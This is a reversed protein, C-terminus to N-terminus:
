RKWIGTLKSVLGSKERGREPGREPGRDVPGAGADGADLLAYGADEVARRLDATEVAGPIIDVRAHGSDLEVNVHVVGPVSRLGEEVHAVCNACTM